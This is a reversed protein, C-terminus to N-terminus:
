DELLYTDNGGIAREVDAIHYKLARLTRKIKMQESNSRPQLPVSIYLWRLRSVLELNALLDTFRWIWTRITREDRGITNALQETTPYVRLFSLTALFYVLHIPNLDELDEDIANWLGKIQDARVGFIARCRRHYIINSPYNGEDDPALNPGFRAAVERVAATNIRM